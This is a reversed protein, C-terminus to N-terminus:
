MEEGNLIYTSTYGDITTAGPSCNNDSGRNGIVSSSTVRFTRRDYTESTTVTGNAVTTITNFVRIEPLFQGQQFYTGAVVTIPFRNLEVTRNYFNTFTTLADTSFTAGSKEEICDIYEQLTDLQSADEINTGSLFANIVQM